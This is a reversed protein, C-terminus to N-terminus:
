QFFYEKRRAAREVISPPLVAALGKGRDQLQSRHHSLARKKAGLSRESLDLAVLRDWPICLDNPTGWHWMWVPAELLRCGAKSAAQRSAESVAEHDPHGDLSWTTVIVDSPRLLAFLKITIAFILDTTKGDPIGLRVVCSPSLGLVRLGGYSENARIQGLHVCAQPNNTGHSAEGNTVAVVLSSLGREARLALLGGCALIEDDPHPAVVVLRSADPCLESISMSKVPQSALWPLWVSENTGAGQFARDNLADM